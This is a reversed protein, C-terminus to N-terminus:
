SGDRGSKATKANISMEAASGWAITFEVEDIDYSQDYITGTGTLNLKQRADVSLDAPAKVSINCDHRIAQSLRAKSLSDVQDQNRGNHHHEVAVADSGIGGANTVGDYKKKDRHHWSRVAMTHPKAATMNRHTELHTVTATGPTGDSGPPVWQVTFDGNDTSKPEFYLSSGDVYWRFGEREALDSLVEHDSRNLLLHVTDQDYIKGAMSGSDSVSATLGHDQAITSVIDGSKQNQFKQSRRKETLSGSKDRGSVSVTCESWDIKPEDIQGTIMSVPDEGIEVAMLIEVDSPQYDAWEAYGMKFQATQQISLEASFTDASRESKRTVTASLCPIQNGGVSLWVRPQRVSGSGSSGDIYTM